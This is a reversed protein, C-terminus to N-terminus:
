IEMVECLLQSYCGVPTFFIPQLNDEKFYLTPSTCTSDCLQEWVTRMHLM